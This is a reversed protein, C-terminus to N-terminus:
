NLSAFECNFEMECLLFDTMVEKGSVFDNVCVYNLLHFFHLSFLFGFNSVDNGEVGQWGVYHVVGFM